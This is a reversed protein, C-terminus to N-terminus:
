NLLMQVSNADPARFGPEVLALGPKGMQIVAPGGSWPERLWGPIQRNDLLAEQQWGSM